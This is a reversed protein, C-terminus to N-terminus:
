KIGTSGIGGRNTCSLKDVKVFHIKKSFLWKLKASLPAFQSLQIKFQLIRDGQRIRCNKIGLLTARWQDENGCYTNDIIGISNVLLFGYTKFSSSRPAIVAEFGKPLEMAIGLPVTTSKFSVLGSPDIEPAHINTNVACRLDIWDGKDIKSIPEIPTLYKVKIKM